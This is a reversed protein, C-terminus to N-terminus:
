WFTAAIARRLLITSNFMPWLMMLRATKTPRGRATRSIFSHMLRAMTAPGDMRSSQDFAMRARALDCTRGRSQLRRPASDESEHRIGSDQEKGSKRLLLAGVEKGKPQFWGLIESCEVWPTILTTDHRDDPRGREATLWRDDIRRAIARSRRLWVVMSPLSSGPDRMGVLPRIKAPHVTAKTVGNRSPSISSAPNSRNTSHCM